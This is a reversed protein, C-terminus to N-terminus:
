KREMEEKIIAVFGPIIQQEVAEIQHPSSLHETFTKAIRKAARMAPEAVSQAPDTFVGDHKPCVVDMRPLEPNKDWGCICDNEVEAMVANPRESKTRYAGSKPCASDHIFLDNVVGELEHCGELGACKPIEVEAPAVGPCEVVGHCDCRPAFTCVHKQWDICQRCEGKSNVGTDHGCELCKAESSLLKEKSEDREDWPIGTQEALRRSHVGFCSVIILLGGDENSAWAKKIPTAMGSERQKSQYFDQALEALRAM